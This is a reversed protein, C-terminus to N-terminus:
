RLDTVGRHCLERRAAFKGVSRAPTVDGARELETAMNVPECFCLCSWCRCYAEGTLADVVRWASPPCCSEALHAQLLADGAARFFKAAVM